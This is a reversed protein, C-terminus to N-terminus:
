SEESIEAARYLADLVEAHTVRNNWDAVAAAGGRGVAAGLLRIPAQAPVDDWRCNAAVAIAGIVCWSQASPHDPHYLPGGRADRAFSMRTWNEEPTLVFAASLLIETAPKM